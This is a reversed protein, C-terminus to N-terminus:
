PNSQRFKALEEYVTKRIFNIKGLPQHESLCHWPAFTLKSDCDATEVKQRPIRITAVKIYPLNWAETFDNVSIGRNADVQVFFDFCTEQKELQKCLREGLFNDSQPKENSIDSTTSPYVAYKVVKEKGLMYPAASFYPITLVNECFSRSRLMRLLGKWAFPNLVFLIFYLSGRSVARVMNFYQHVDSTIFRNHSILVFDQFNRNDKEMLKIAMGRVDKDKDKKVSSSSNSFRIVADFSRATRFIGTKLSPDINEEVTFFAKVCGHVKPHVPRLMNGAPYDKKLKRKFEEITRRVLREEKGTLKM